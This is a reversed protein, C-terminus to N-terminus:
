GRERTSTTAVVHRDTLGTNAHGRELVLSHLISARCHVVLTVVCLCHDRVYLVFLVAVHLVLILSYIHM